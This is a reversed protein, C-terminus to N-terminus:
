RRAKGFGKIQIGTKKKIKTTKEGTKVVTGGNKYMGIRGGDKAGQYFSGDDFRNIGPKGLISSRGRMGMNKSLMGPMTDDSYADNSTMKNLTTRVIDSKPLDMEVNANRRKLAKAALLAAGVPLAVKAAKKLGRKLKKLIAM